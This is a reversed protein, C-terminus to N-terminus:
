FKEQHAGHGSNSSSGHGNGGHQQGAQLRQADAPDGGNVVARLTAGGDSRKDVDALAGVDGAGLGEGAHDQLTAVLVRQGHGALLHFVPRLDDVDVHVLGHEVALGRHHPEQVQDGTLGVDRAHRDHDIRGLPAHDFGAQLADLALADDVRDGHLLPHRLELALRPQDFAIAGRGHHHGKVLLTLGVGIRALDLDAFAGPADQDILHTERGLVDDEVGVDEGDGGADFLVVVVRDIEDFGRAPDLLKLKRPLSGTRSAM